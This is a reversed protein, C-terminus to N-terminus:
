TRTTPELRGRSIGVPPFDRKRCGRCSRDAPVPSLIPSVNHDLTLVYKRLIHRFADDVPVQEIRRHDRHHRTLEYEHGADQRAVALALDDALAVHRRLDPLHELVDASRKGRGAGGHGVDDLALGKRRIDIGVEGVDIGAHLVAAVVERGARRDLHAPQRMGVEHDFDLHHRHYRFSSFESAGAPLSRTPSSYASSMAWGGSWRANDACAATTM